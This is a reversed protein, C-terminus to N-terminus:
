CLESAEKKTAYRLESAVHNSYFNPRYGGLKVRCYKGLQALLSLMLALPSGTTLLFLAALCEGAQRDRRASVLTAGPMRTSPFLILALPRSFGDIM